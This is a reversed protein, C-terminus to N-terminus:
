LRGKEKKLEDDSLKEKDVKSNFLNLDHTEFLQKYKELLADKSSRLTSPIEFLTDLSFGNSDVAIYNNFLFDEYYQSQSNARVFWYRTDEPIDLVNITSEM